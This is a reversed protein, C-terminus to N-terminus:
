GHPAPQAIGIVGCAQRAGAAGIPPHKPDNAKAHVIVARGIISKPGTLSAHQILNNAQANGNQDAFLSGLNGTIRDIDKPPNLSSGQLNFHTGASSGDAISCDGYLHIHYGHEGPTLGTAVTEVRLGDDGPTFRVTGKIKNGATAHLVAVAAQPQDEDARQGSATGTNKLKDSVAAAGKQQTTKDVKAGAKEMIKKTTQAAADAGEQAKECGTAVLLMLTLGLITILMKM